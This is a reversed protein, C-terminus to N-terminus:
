LPPELGTIDEPSGEFVEEYNPGPVRKVLLALDREFRLLAERAAELHVRLSPHQAIAWDIDAGGEAYVALISFRARNFFKILRAV